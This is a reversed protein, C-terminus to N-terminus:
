NAAPTSPLPKRRNRRPPVSRNGLLTAVCDVAQGVTRAREAVDDPITIAFEEEFEMVLEVTDLSDAGLDEKFRSERKVKEQPIGMQEAVIEM